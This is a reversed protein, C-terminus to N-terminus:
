RPREYATKGLANLFDARATPTLRSMVQVEANWLATEAAALARRGSATLSLEIPKPGQRGVAARGALALRDRCLRQTMDAMTSRDIDTLACLSDRTQPGLRSLTELVAFQPMTLGDRNMGSYVAILAQNTRRILEAPRQGPM